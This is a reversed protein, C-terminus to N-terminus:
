RGLDFNLHFRAGESTDKATLSGHGLYEALKGLLAVESEARERSNGKEVTNRMVLRERDQDVLRGLEGGEAKMILTDGTGNHAPAKIAKVLDRTIGASSGIIFRDGVQVASPSFNHRQHVPEDKPLEAPTIFRATTITVGEFDETDLLLPPAKAQGANLNTLGVFSQFASRLRVAFDADEGNLEVVLAFAPLIVDPTPDLSKSEQRAVVVQWHKGLAGLVGTGFDRGGFFQGAFTDLKAFGQSQEPPFIEELANWIAAMDRWLSGSAILRPVTLPERAGQGSEPLFGAFSADYGKEPKSLALNASLRDRTWTLDLGLWDGFRAAKAWAGFIFLTGTNLKEPAYQKPDAARLRDLRVYAWATADKSVAARRAQFTADDALPKSVAKPDRLRDVLTKIADAGNAIVLRGDVIAHAEGKSFSYGHVGKYEAEKVPDPKGKDEADKRALEILKAHAKELFATDKPAISLWVREPREAGEVSLAVGGGLLDRLGQEPTTDLAAAIHKVVGFVQRTQEGDFAKNLGPVAKLLEAANDVFIRDILAEPQAVEFYAITQGAEGCRALALPEAGRSRDAGLILGCFLALGVGMRWRM